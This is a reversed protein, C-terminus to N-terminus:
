VTRAIVLCAPYTEASESPEMYTKLSIPGRSISYGAAAMVEVQGLDLVGQPWQSIGDGVWRQFLAMLQGIKVYTGKLKGLENVFRRAERRAFQSDGDDFFLM